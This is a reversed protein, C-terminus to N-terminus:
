REDEIRIWGSIDIIIAYRDRNEGEIIIKGGSSGGKPYFVISDEKTSIFEKITTNLPLTITAGNEIWCRGEELSFRVECIIREMVAKERASNLFSAIERAAEKLRGKDRFKSFTPLALGIMIGIIIIVVLLEILTLGERKQM